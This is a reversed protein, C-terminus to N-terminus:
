PSLLNGSRASNKIRGPGKPLALKSKCSESDSPERNLIASETGTSNGLSTFRKRARQGSGGMRAKKAFLFFFCPSGSFFFVLIEERRFGEFGQFLSCFRGFFCPFGCFSFFSSSSFLSSQFALTTLIEPVITPPCNLFCQLRQSFLPCGRFDM